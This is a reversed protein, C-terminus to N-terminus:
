KNVFVKKHVQVHQEMELLVLTVNAHLLDKHIQAHQLRTVHVVLLASM